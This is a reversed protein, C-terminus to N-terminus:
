TRQGNKLQNNTKKTNFKTLEKYIKSILWKDSTFAFINEIRHTTIKNQQNRKSYPLKKKIEHAGM